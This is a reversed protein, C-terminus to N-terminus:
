KQTKLKKYVFFAIIIGVILLAWQLMSNNKSSSMLDYNIEQILSHKEGQEDKYTLIIDGTIKETAIFDFIASTLDDRDLTGLYEMTVGIVEKDLNLKSEVNYAKSSGINEYQVSITQMVSKTPIEPDLNIGSIM